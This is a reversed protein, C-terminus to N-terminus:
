VYWGYEFATFSDGRWEFIEARPSKFPKSSSYRTLIAFTKHMEETFTEKFKKL